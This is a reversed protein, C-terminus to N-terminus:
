QGQVNPGNAGAEVDGIDIGGSFKSREIVLGTGVAKITRIRLFEAEVENLNM